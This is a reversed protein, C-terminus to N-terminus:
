RGTGAPDGLLVVGERRISEYLGETDRRRRKWEAADIDVVNVPNGAYREADIAWRFVAAAWADPDAATPRVLLVDIDSGIGAEGRAFSGFVVARVPAPRIEAVTRRLHDMVCTPLTRIQELAQIVANGAVPEHLAAPPVDRRTVLGLAVLRALVRSAHPQSVDAVRAVDSTSLARGAALLANLVKGQAGPIVAELPTHLDM